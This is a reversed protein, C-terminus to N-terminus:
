IKLEKTAIIKGEYTQEIRMRYHRMFDFGGSQAYVTHLYYIQSDMLLKCPTNNVTKGTPRISAEYCGLDAQRGAPQRPSVLGPTLWPRAFPPPSGDDPDSEPGLGDALRTPMQFPSGGPGAHAPERPRGLNFRTAYTATGNHRPREFFRFLAIGSSPVAVAIACGYRLVNIVVLSIRM